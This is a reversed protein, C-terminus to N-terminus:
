AGGPAPPKGNRVSAKWGNEALKNGGELVSGVSATNAASRAQAGSLRYNSADVYGGAKQAQGDLITLTADEEANGIIEENIDIATGENVEVGSGALAANAQSAQNRALRRIRDAQVMAASAAAEADRQSQEAQADATLQAQKGAQQSSYVSYGTSVAAMFMAAQTM